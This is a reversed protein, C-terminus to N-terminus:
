EPFIAEVSKVFSAINNNSNALRRGLDNWIKGQKKVVVIKVGLAPVTSLVISNGTISFEAPLKEDGEKRAGVPDVTDDNSMPVVPSYPYETHKYLIYSNKKLRYGAVFVEVQDKNFDFPLQITNNIGDSIATEIIFEDRYPITESIGLSQVLTDVPHETPAGTGLTARRLQTLVNGDKVFYEIREGNIEIIGPVRTLPNPDDLVSTDEVVIDKDFQKLPALLRTTKAKNLRKYHVRNVIDKFQMYGFNDTVATNNFSIIQIVDTTLPAVDLRVTQYDDELYYDVRNILLEGNKIVWVFDGSSVTSSLKFLGGSKDNFEYFEPSNQVLVPTQNFTDVTRYTNLVNHNYFSTIEVPVESILPNTFKIRNSSIFEYDANKAVGIVLQKGEIFSSTRLKISYRTLDETAVFQGQIRANSGSGGSTVLPFEPPTIYFGPDVLEVTIINGNVATVVQLRAPRGTTGLDGGVVELIDDQTYGEGTALISEEDLQYYPNPYNFEVLYNKNLKLKKGDVYVSFDEAILQQTQYKSDKLEYSLRPKKNDLLELTFYEYSPSRLISNEARVLVNAEYPMNVGASNILDYTDNDFSYDIVESKVITATQEVDLRDIIYNIVAGAPPEILFRIGLRARWILSEDNIYEDNTSFTEYPILEGNVLVTANLNSLWPAKTIYETTIGDAIFYDLDLVNAASFNISLISVESGAVPAVIFKILNNQYDITYDVDVTKIAGLEKVIVAHKNQFYQGIVFDTQEGNGFYTKFLMSPVGGSPRTYVKIALTDMVQGPVIEEPAHSTMPTVFADGDLTIDDPNVGTATVYSWDGGSLKTDYNEEREPISGDSEFKRFIVRDNIELNATLPLAIIDIEGDGAFSTMFANENINIYEWYENNLPINGLSTKICKYLNKNYIVLNGKVYEITPSYSDNSLDIGYYFDDIRVPASYTEDVTNYKSIYVNIVEGAAPVYPLRFKYSELDSDNVLVTFDEFGPAAADWVESFWPASDWGFTGGFDLGTVSVGGYDIGKMLQSLDKGTQGTKPNYYFNIRDTASLHDFNKLYRIQITSGATPPTVFTLLGSYRTTGDIVQKVTEVTYENKLVDINNIEVSYKDFQIDPSWKLPFQTKSSSVANFVEVEELNTVQYVKSIRDFKMKIYNTRIPSNGIIAVARAPRGGELLTGDITVIPAKVWKTGSSLLEIRNVKGKSIYAKASASTGGALQHGQIRVVPTFAYGEGQDVIELKIIEFGVNQTWSLWPDQLIEPNSSVIKYDDSITVSVPRVTFSEDIVPLLDFDTVSTKTHDIKNYNSVYERVKTRYPKVEKIYEEFFELNDSNYTVKQKLEGLNHMAKVFSTKMAWDVFTQEHLVYRMSSFFLKLYEVKLEDVLLDDRVAKLIIRLEEAPYSDYGTTDLLFKDYGKNPIYLSDLFQISGNERGVTKYNETYDITALNNYKELLVWGGSGINKIKVVAGIEVETTVLQYTNEFLYDVKVFQNYGSAYWDIYKWYDNVNYSQVKSKIWKKSYTDFSYVAWANTETDSEVLVSFPRISVTTNDSYGEGTDEVLIKVIEGTRNVITKLVAGTGKGAVIVSPGYWTIPQDTNEDIEYVRFTGYGKGSDNVVGGVIKGDTIILSINANRIQSTQVFRLEQDTDIKQDWLGSNESPQQDFSKLKSIDYTDSVLVNKLVSNVREVYQKLAEIRNIFMGQRPRYEIGYRQKLPLNVDPVVRNSDDKGVLSHIWKDELIAPINTNRNTSLLKWQSHYNNSREKNTWYQISLVINKNELYKEANVLSVSNSDTFALCTYGYGLPDSILNSIDVISLKRGEISPVTVKNKVWFYYTNVFQQSVNDYKRKLSYASNGYVSTGSFGSAIGAETTVQADWIEPLVPSKVWEYVDISATDYLKNWTTTKYVVDGSETDLFRATTLNWWTMGVHKEQWALGEDVVKSDDGVVYVAPDYYTKFKIEQDAIGPIKDLSPDVVDLYTVIKNTEKNYLFAKKITSIDVKYSRTQTAIWSKSGSPKTYSYVVGADEVGNVDKLMSSTLITNGGVAIQKGFDSNLVIESQLSEGYIFNVNYRDYIDIRGVDIVIDEFRLSGNDFITQDTDFITSLTEDGAEAFIALSNDNNIFEVTTGFKENIENKRSYITQNLSYTDNIKKYVYVVGVNLRQRADELNAGIAIYNSNSSISISHGFQSNEDLANSVLSSGLTSFVEGNFSYIDVKGSDLYNPSSVALIFTDSVAIDHGFNNSGTLTQIQAWINDRYRYLHVQENASAALIYEDDQKAISLNKGFFVSLPKDLTTLLYYSGLDTDPTEENLLIDNRQYIKIKNITPEGVVLFKGDKSFKVVVSATDTEIIQLATWMTDTSSKLYVIVQSATAIAAKNGSETLALSTGFKSDETLINEFIQSRTYIKNNKYVSWKGTGNDDVWITEDKKIRRQILDNANDINNTRAPTVIYLLAPVTLDFETFGTISASVTLKNLQISKVVFFGEIKLNPSSEGALTNSSIPVEIGVVDGPRYDVLQDCEITLTDNSYTANLIKYNSRTFRYVGWSTKDFAAWIYDGEIFDEISATTLDTISNVNLKVDEKRVYGPTRLFNPLEKTEWINKTFNSPKIYVDSPLQRYVFDVLNNDISDVIELPQPNIKFQEQNLIFEVEKFTDVAGYEGVRFAWEEDFTLSEKDDASLVDFLKNLVNLTGKESIMGQYFKYQSVDNNIINELYQRKQYGILHQAIKQQSADFNDSDLDYFDTFQEARYDWNPLLENKPRSDLLSWDSTNFVEVGPLFRKASYYFEKYKVIDGLNYDNWPTWATVVARDYIFGPIEFGGYWNTTVYGLAKIKEQRYGASKDYITDNFLTTDDLVVVHEKQVLYLTLGYIGYSTSAPEIIFENGGAYSQSYKPELRASTGRYVQVYQPDLKQGDVRYVSYGYFDNIINDVVSNESRFVLRDAAPSLSLVSGEDWGQTTWFLFEKISTEWNSVTAISTNFDDFVFGQDELWEGYGQLFDVVEQPTRLKTGYSITNTSTKDFYKGLIAERGGIIPLQPLRVYLSNDFEEGSVHNVLVRYYQGAQAVIKGAVYTKNSNWTSFSESIGGVRIVRDEINYTYYNFYPNEFNYGRIEFGDDFKTVIVGSYVVKKIASSVNLDVFYNENPIFVGGSSSPTKSDLLLRYKDKSTFGGLRTSINNTLLQLDQKYDNLRDAKENTLYEVLYNVLGSAYIRTEDVLSNSPIVIDSLKIRLNTESYVLQDTLNKVIRSRDFCRSLVDAPHMLLLSELIAFPYYSSKRWAAEVTYEDGFEYYGDNSIPLIGVALGADQPSVLEGQSNVPLGQALIPRAYKEDLRIPHGPERIRGDRLDEWLILNDSTYPAPGYINQWWTPEVSYGLCEWPKLNPVTTDFLWRYIGRWSAPTSNGDPTYHERYNWTFSNFRDYITDDPKTYDQPINLTWQFFYKSLIRNFEDRSYDTIRNYGPIYNWIDFIEPNYRIKINNFIRTELELILDDRYDNYAITISGDHGQIVRTPELYSNDIYIKPEFAPYIGLKTPTPACFCGDTSEYEYVEIIDNENLVVSNSITFFEEKNFSYDKTHILQRGNLYILVSKNSCATLNFPASLPYIKIRSDLVVIEIKNSATYAFMDSLYYPKNKVKDKALEQLIYDVHIKPDADIGSNTAAIIFSRKFQNYDIRAQEMSKILNANTSGLHYLALNLPGSHQVFRTGYQSLAGLDRLNNNGPYTGQFDNINDIITDVHDIVQGLTFEVIDQNLPNNQLNIPIEYFGNNNKKQKSYCKLTVIDTLDVDTELVVLKHITSDVISFKDKNLRRGNVFVRVDLDQLNNKDDFVDIPFNNVLESEKFIRVIPQSNKINSITWGNEFKFNNISFSKKLYGTNTPKTQVALGLKYSFEENLLDFNFVIDGVNNINKYSLPFELTSDDAGKGVKYSFIKSGAFSSGPYKLVDTYSVGDNDFIDFLPPNNPGEKIQALKWTNGDFWYNQGKNGITGNRIIDSTGFRIAVTEYLQPVSDVDESLYIQRNRGAFLELKHIGPTAAFIEVPKTLQKDFYLSITLTDVANVFYTERNILGPLSENGNQLYTVQNGSSLGHETDFLITSTDLRLMLTPDFSIEKGPPQFEIFNVKYIKNRVLPDTDANFLVRMGDALDIGDINYGLKGEIESFVDKTFNDIVDVAQKAVIGYNYLKFNPLFEIIPRTARTSLNIEPTKNNVTASTKIVDEHFWRNYRSWPNNDLSSRNITIYDPRIPFTGTESYPLQDFPIDDFLLSTEEIYTSRIELERESILKISTGVGEVYWYGQAYKEPQVQGGFELKMGNSLKFLEVSDKSVTYNRKGLIDQELDLFTNEDIDLIKFVGSTDVANESVYFLVDPATDPVTFVIKGNEVAVGDVGVLYRDIPGETKKTKISFPHGKADINFIYTQGRFLRIVPNRVLAEKPGEPDFLYAVNDEEDVTTISFESVVELQQGFVRIPDPGFPLWYYRQFNVFKDWEIHPDWSYFEQRNIRSHNDVNGDFVSIHNIHDIYDKFFTTNGLYDKIIAAPELQYNQRIQDAAELFIDKSTTAKATERGVFGSVKKVTGPQTLQDLTGQLFKKNGKTRYYKPLLNSTERNEINSSPVSPEKQDDNFAM